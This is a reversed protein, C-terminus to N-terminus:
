TVALAIIDFVHYIHRECRIERKREREIEREGREKEIDRDFLSL